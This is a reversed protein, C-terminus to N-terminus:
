HEYGLEKLIKHVDGCIVEDTEENILIPLSANSLNYYAVASMAEASEADIMTVCGPKKMAPNGDIMEVTMRALLAHCKGCNNGSIITFRM